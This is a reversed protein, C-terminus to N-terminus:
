LGDPGKMSSEKLPPPAHLGSLVCQSPECYGNLGPTGPPGPIGPIGPEGAPGKMGDRGDNGFATQGPEGLFNCHCIWADTHANRVSLM